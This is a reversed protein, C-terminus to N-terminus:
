TISSEEIIFITNELMSYNVSAKPFQKKLLGYIEENSRIHSVSGGVIEVKKTFEQILDFGEDFVSVEITPLAITSPKNKKINNLIDNRSAM